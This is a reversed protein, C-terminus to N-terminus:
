LFSRVSLRPCRKAHLSHKPSLEVSRHAPAPSSDKSEKKECWTGQGGLFIPGQQCLQESMQM